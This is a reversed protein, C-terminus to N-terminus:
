KKGKPKKVPLAKTATVKATKMYAKSSCNKSM